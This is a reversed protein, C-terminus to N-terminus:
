IGVKAELYKLYERISAAGTIDFHGYRGLAELARNRQEDGGKSKAYEATKKMMTQGDDVEECLDTGKLAEDIKSQLSEAKNAPHYEVGLEDCQKRLVKLDKITATSM